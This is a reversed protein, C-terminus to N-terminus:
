MKSGLTRVKDAKLNTKIMPEISCYIAEGQGKPLLWNVKVRFGVRVRVRVGVRVRVRVGVMVRVNFGVRAM